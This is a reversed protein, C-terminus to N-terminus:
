CGTDPRQTGSPPASVCERYDKQRFLPFVGSTLGSVLADYTVTSSNSMQVQAAAVAGDIKVNQDLTVASYPAYIVGAISLNNSLTVACRSPTPLPLTSCAYPGSITPNGIVYIQLTRPDTNTNVITAKNTKTIGGINLNQPNNQCNEPDDIYIRVASGSKPAVILSSNNGVDLQCFSYISGGLTLTANSALALRRTTPDWSVSGPNTCADHVADVVCGLRGNDNVTASNGPNVPALSIQTDTSAPHCVTSNGSANIAKGPGPTASGPCIASSNELTINGNTVVNGLVSAGQSLKVDKISSVGNGGFLPQGTPAGLDVAVRRTVGHSTGTSIVVWTLTPASGVGIVVQVAYSYSADGGVDETVAPCWNTDAVVTYNVLTLSGSANVSVCPTTVHDGADLKNLRYAASAVGADAAQQARTAWRDKNSAQNAYFATAIAAAVLLLSVALVAITTPMLFGDERSVRRLFRVDTFRRSL